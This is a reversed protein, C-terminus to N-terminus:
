AHRWAVAWLPGGGVSVVAHVEVREHCGPQALVEKSVVIRLPWMLRTLGLCTCCRLPDGCVIRVRMLYM